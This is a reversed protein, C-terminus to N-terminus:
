FPIAEKYLPCCKACQMADRYVPEDLEGTVRVWYDSLASCYSVKRSVFHECQGCTPQQTVM